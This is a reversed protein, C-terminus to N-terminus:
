AHALHAMPRAESGSHVRRNKKYGPPLICLLIMVIYLIIVILHDFRFHLAIIVCIQKKVLSTVLKYPLVHYVILLLTISEEKETTPCIQPMRVSLICFPNLKLPHKAGQSGDYARAGPEGHGGFGARAGRQSVHTRGQLILKTM